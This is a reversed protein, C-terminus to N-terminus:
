KRSEVGNPMSKIARVLDHFAGSKLVFCDMGVDLAEDKAEVDSANSVGIIYLNSGNDGKHEEYEYLRYERVVDIGNMGPMRVDMVVADFVQEKMAALADRGNNAVQVTFGAVELARKTTKLVPTSDDVVLVNTTTMGRKSPATGLVTAITDLLKQISHPRALLFDMGAELAEMRVDGDVSASVGVVALRNSPRGKSEEKGEDLRGELERLRRCAELGGMVPMQLDMVVADFNDNLIKQLADEGNEATDVYHGNM